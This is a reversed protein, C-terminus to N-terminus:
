RIPSYTFDTDLVQKARDAVDASRKISADYLTADNGLATTLDRAAPAFRKCNDIISRLLATDDPTLGRKQIHTQVFSKGTAPDTYQYDQTILRDAQALTMETQNTYADLESKMLAAAHKSLDAFMATTKENNGDIALELGRIAVALKCFEIIPPLNRAALVAKYKAQIAAMEDAYLCLMARPRKLPDLISIPEKSDGTKPTYQFASSRTILLEMAAAKAALDPKSDDIAQKRAAAFADLASRQERIELLCNARLILLETRDYEAAAPGKLELVRILLRLADRQKGDAELAQLELMSPLANPASTQARAPLCFLLTALLFSVQLKTRM